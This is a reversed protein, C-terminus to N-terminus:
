NEDFGLPNIIEMIIGGNVGHLKSSACSFNNNFVHGMNRGTCFTPVLYTNRM